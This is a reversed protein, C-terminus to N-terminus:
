KEVPGAAAAGGAPPQKPGGETNFFRALRVLERPLYRAATYHGADLWVLEPENGIANHLAETCRPLVIEDNKAAIMLVRRGKLRDGYTVPDVTRLVKAFSERTGGMAAWKERFERAKDTDNSWIVEAFDGGGLVIGVNRLRPEGEAALASMIGGLSIGTIGLRGPDVEERQALWAAGRRIDLVAQTMGAVTQHPDESIMRRNSGQGRREGYYPLKIFLAAVGNSALHNAVAEALLFDGGLIHLVVCAPFPGSGAPQFYEGHVTNNEPVDTEVPSPFNVQSARVRVAQKVPRCRYTFDHRTLRFHEPVHEEDEAPQFTVVGEAPLPLYEPSKRSAKEPTRPEASVAAGTSGALLGLGCLISCLGPFFPSSMCNRFRYSAM